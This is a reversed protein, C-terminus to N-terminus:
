MLSCCSWSNNSPRQYVVMVGPKPSSVPLHHSRPDLTLVRQHMPHFDMKLCVRTLTEEFMEKVGKNQRASIEYYAIKKSQAWDRAEIHTVMRRHDMKAECKNAVLVIEMGVSGKRVLQEYWFECAHFSAMSTVDFVLFGIAKSRFYSGILSRYREQGATDWLKVKITAGELGHSPPLTVEMDKSSYEVGITPEIRCYHKDNLTAVMTTKGVAAEGVVICEM